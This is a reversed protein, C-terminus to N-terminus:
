WHDGTTHHQCNECVGTHCDCSEAHGNCECPICYGGYPGNPDRYYGKACDECSLGQYGVPCQCKESPIERYEHYNEPDEDALTLTVDSLYTILGKDFYSARVYIRKLDRLVMMFQERTVSAGNSTQFNSEIIEVSGRFKEQAAPQRYNTHKLVLDKGELIVDPGIQASGFMHTSYLLEYNLLGGYATLHNNQNGFFEIFGFYAYGNLLEPATADALYVQATTDNVLIPESPDVIWKLNEVKGSKTINITHLTLDSLMSVNM